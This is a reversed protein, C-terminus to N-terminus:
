AALAELLQIQRHVEHATQAAHLAQFVVGVECLQKQHPVGAGLKLAVPLVHHGRQRLELYPCVPECVKM